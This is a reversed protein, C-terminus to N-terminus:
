SLLLAVFSIFFIGYFPVRVYKFGYFYNLANVMVLTIVAPCMVMLLPIAMRMIGDFGLLSFIFSIVMTITLCTSYSFKKGFIEKKFFEASVLALSIATTLCAMSVIINAVLGAKEGMTLKALTGLLKDGPVESLSGN